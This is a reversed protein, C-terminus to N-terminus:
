ASTEIRLLVGNHKRHFMIEDMNFMARKGCVSCVRTMKPVSIEGLSGAYYDHTSTSRIPAENNM